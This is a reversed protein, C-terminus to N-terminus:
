RSREPAASPCTENSNLVYASGAQGEASVDDRLRTSVQDTGGAAAIKGSWGCEAGAYVAVRGGGGAGAGGGPQDCGNGQAVFAPALPAGGTECALGGDASITGTGTLETAHVLVSGGAGGGSGGRGYSAPEVSTPGASDQGNASVTGALELTGVDLTLVGGGPNGDYGTVNGSGGGGGGPLDPDSASDYTPGSLTANNNTIDDNGGRGGHSGGAALGSGKLGPASGGRDDRKGDYGYGRTDVTVQSTADVDLLPASINLFMQGLPTTVTSGDLVDVEAFRLSTAWVLAEGTVVLRRKPGSWSPLVPTADPPAYYVPPPFWGDTQGADITLTGGPFAGTGGSVGGKPKFVVQQTFVTGAGGTGVAYVRAQGLNGGNAGTAPKLQDWGGYAQLSGTWGSDDSYLVAIRGGGGAGGHGAGACTFPYPCLSAGDASVTGSGVLSGAAIFVSGGAGLACDSGACGYGYGPDGPEWFGDVNITGDITATGAHSYIRVVGGGPEEPDGSGPRDPDFPNGYSPTRTLFEHWFAWTDGEGGPIGGYGGYSAGFYGGSNSNAPAAEKLVEGTTAGRGQTDITSGAALVFDPTAVDVAQGSVETPLSISPATLLNALDDLQGDVKLAGAALSTWTGVDGLDAAAGAIVKPDISGISVENTGDLTIHGLMQAVGAAMAIVPAKLTLDSGMVLGGVSVIGTSSTLTPGALLNSLDGGTADAVLAGGPLLVITQQGSSYSTALFTPVCIFLFDPNPQTAPCLQDQSSGEGLGATDANVTTCANIAGSQAAPCYSPSCNPYTPVERPPQSSSGGGAYHSCFAQQAQALLELPRNFDLQLPGGKSQEFVLGGLYGEADGALQEAAAQVQEQDAQKGALLLSASLTFNVGFSAEDPISSVQYGAVKAGIFGVSNLTVATGPRDSISGALEASLHVSACDSVDTVTLNVTANDVNVVLKWGCGTTGISGTYTRADGSASATRSTAAVLGWGM